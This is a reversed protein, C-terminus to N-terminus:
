YQLKCSRTFPSFVEKALWDISTVFNPLRPNLNSNILRVGFKLREHVFSPDEHPLLYIRAFEIFSSLSDKISRIFARRVSSDIETDALLGVKSSSQKM